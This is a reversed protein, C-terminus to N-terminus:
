SEWLPGRSGRAGCHPGSACRDETRFIRIEGSREQRDSGKHSRVIRRNNALPTLAIIGWSKQQCVQSNHTDLRQSM